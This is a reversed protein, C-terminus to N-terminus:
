LPAVVMPPTTFPLLTAVVTLSPLALSTVRHVRPASEEFPTGYDPALVLTEHGAARLARELFDVAVAVGSVRPLYNNTFLAVRM